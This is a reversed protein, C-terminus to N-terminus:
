EDLLPSVITKVEATGAEGLDVPVEYTGTTRIPPDVTIHRRDIRVERAEFIADSVDGSTISGFLRGDGGAKAKIRSVHEQVRHKSVDCVAAFAVNNEQFHELNLGVHAGGGQNGVGVFGIVLKNNAGLVNASPAQNQGYVPTRLSGAAALVSAAATSRKLFQRRNTAPTPTEAPM